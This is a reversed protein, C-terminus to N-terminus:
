GHAVGVLGVTSTEKICGLVPSLPSFAPPCDRQKADNKVDSAISAAMIVTNVRIQCLIAGSKGSGYGSAGAAPAQRHGSYSATRM